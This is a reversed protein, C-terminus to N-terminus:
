RLLAAILIVGIILLVAPILWKAPWKAPLKAHAPPTSAASTPQQTPPHAGPSADTGAREEPSQSSKAATKRFAYDPCHELFWSPGTDLGLRFRLEGILKLTSHTSDYLARKQMDLLVTADDRLGPKLELAAQVEEAGAKRDIGLRSYLDKV